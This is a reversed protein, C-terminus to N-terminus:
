ISQSQFKFKFLYIIVDILYPFFHICVIYFILKQVINLNNLYYGIRDRLEM